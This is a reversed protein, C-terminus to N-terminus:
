EDDDRLLEEILLSFMQYTHEIQANTARALARRCAAEATGKRVKNVKQGAATLKLRVRRRDAPDIARVIMGQRELRALVGTLTSPHVGLTAALERGGIGPQQGVLRLVLRQPGTVGLARAMHKSRVELAHAVGWLQQM